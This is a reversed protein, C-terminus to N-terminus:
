KAASLLDRALLRAEHDVLVFRIIAWPPPEQALTTEIELYVANDERRVNWPKKPLKTDSDIEWRM